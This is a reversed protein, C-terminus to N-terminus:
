PQDSHLIFSFTQAHLLVVLRDLAPRDVPLLLVVLNSFMESGYDAQLCVTTM